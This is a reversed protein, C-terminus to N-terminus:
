VNKDGILYSVIERAMIIGASSPVFIMSAPAHRSENGSNIEICPKITKEPSWVVKLKKINRAKLERRMVRCLPCGETKFIDSVKLLSPDLKNGTGMCSIVPIDLQQARTIIELKASVTDIADAIFDYQSLDIKDANEPLYFMDFSEVICDPNIDLIRKKIIETKREGITSTLACLQRNINSESVSDCDVIAIKGVGSRALAEATFSGVGGLGFLIVSSKNLKEASAEGILSCTRLFRDDM